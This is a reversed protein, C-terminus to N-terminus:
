IAREYQHGAAQQLQNFKHILAAPAYELDPYDMTAEIIEEARRKDVEIESGFYVYSVGGNQKGPIAIRAILGMKMLKFLYQSINKSSVGLESVCDSSITGFNERVMKVLSHEIKTLEHGEFNIRLSKVLKDFFGQHFKFFRYYFMQVNGTREMDVDPSKMMARLASAATQRRLTYGSSKILDQIESFSIIQNLPVVDSILEAASKKPKDSM